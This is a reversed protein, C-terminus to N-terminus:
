LDDESHIGRERGAEELLQQSPRLFRPSPAEEDVATARGGRHLLPIIGADLPPSSIPGESEFVDAPVTNGRKAIAEGRSDMKSELARLDDLKQPRVGKPDEGCDTSELGSKSKKLKKQARTCGRQVEATAEAGTAAAWRMRLENLTKALGELDEKSQLEREFDRRLREALIGWDRHSIVAAMQQKEAIWQDLEEVSLEEDTQSFTHIRKRKAAKAKATERRALFHNRRKEAERHEDPLGGVVTETPAKAWQDEATRSRLDDHHNHHAEVEDMIEAKRSGDAVAARLLSPDEGAGALVFLDGIIGLYDM